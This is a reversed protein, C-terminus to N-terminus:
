PANGGRFGHAEDGAIAPPQREIPLALFFRSGGGERDEVGLNGGHLRAVADCIALGLGSGRPGDRRWRPGRYFKESARAKEEATLGPGRDSVELLVRGAETRACVEIASGPPSYKAANDLLNSLALEILVGDVRVMPMAGPIRTEIRHSALQRSLRTLSSGVLDEVLNWERKLVIQGSELMTMHLVNDVLRSLRGAEDYISQLLGQREEPDIRDGADLLVSSAGAIGALPSRFDHSVSSLLASRLKESEAQAITRHVQEALRDRQLALAVQAAFSEVLRRRDPLLLVDPDRARVALVGVVGGPVALPVCLASADAHTDTGAGAMRGHEYAWAAAALIRRDRGLVGAGGWAPRLCGQADPLLISVEEGLLSSLRAEAAATIQLHGTAASLEQGLQCLQETRRERETSGISQERIRATLASVLIGIALMVAFTFLYGSEQVRLSYEPSTFFFNFLLVAGVSAFIAPGRGLQAAVATVGLLYVLVLNAESLGLTEFAWAVGTAAILAGVAGLYAWARAPKARQFPAGDKAGDDLGRIVYVDIEGSAGIVRDVLSRRWRSRWSPSGTKGIVIRTAGHSRAFRVIEEAVDGGPLVATAAGLSEALRLHQSVRREDPGAAAGLTGVHIATWPARMSRAMRSASRIVRASTPSPGVCVVLREVTPWAVGAPRRAERVPQERASLRDAARRLAIERLAVLVAREAAASAADRSDSTRASVGHAESLLDDPSLDIVEVEDASDFIADPVRDAAVSGTIREVVDALSEIHRVDVTTWVDIGANLLEEADQHRRRHRAGPPNRVALDPLLVLGPHLRLVEDLDFGGAGSVPVVELSSLLDGADPGVSRGPSAVFVVRTGGSVEDRAAQLMARANAVGAAYGFFIRLRGRALHAGGGMPVGFPSPRPADSPSDPPVGSTSPTEADVM